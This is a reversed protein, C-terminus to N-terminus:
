LQIESAGRTRIDCYFVNDKGFVKEMGEGYSAVEEEKVFALVTGAFGGGQMRYAGDHILKESLKLALMIPQETSGPVYCNQLFALSSEGSKRIQALFGQRDRRHLAKVARDVRVNEEMFHYARLIARDSVKERLAPLSDTLEDMTVERLVTKGFFAAVEKMENKIAAYHSTLGAHSGGTNTMVISYGKLPPVKEYVPHAPDLFDIKNLGGLAVGSQDLLGCPKGFYVDEAYQSVRAKDSPTLAGGLYLVNVIEAILVEFAASSSVGAGRFVNSTTVARFGGFSYGMDSIAKLVGRVLSASQGEESPKKELDRVDFRVSQFDEAFVEVVGDDSPSVYSLIDCSIASVLVKGHNHDTHNGVVEMRGSSSFLREPAKGYRSRFLEEAKRRRGEFLGEDRGYFDKLSDMHKEEFFIMKRM